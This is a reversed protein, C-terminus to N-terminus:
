CDPQYSFPSIFDAFGPLRRDKDSLRAAEPSVPWDIALTPDAWFLGDDAAPAYYETVKYTVLTDPELTCFGHAFGVPVLLQEGKAASLHRSLWRGYHPSGRRLDVAVDLIAGRVVEILKNQAHPPRQFHLGRVTGVSASFSLNDQIFTWSLGTVDAFRRANFSEVFFGRTDQCRRPRLGLVGPIELQEVQLV